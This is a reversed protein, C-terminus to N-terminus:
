WEGKRAQGALGQILRPVKPGVLLISFFVPIAQGEIGSRSSRSRRDPWSSM